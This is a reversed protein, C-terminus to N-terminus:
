GMIKMIEKKKDDIQRELAVIDFYLEKAKEIKNKFVEDFRFKYFSRDTGEDEYYPLCYYAQKLVLHLISFDYEKLNIFYRFLKNKNSFKEVINKINDVIFSVGKELVEERKIKISETEPSYFLSCTVDKSIKSDFELKDNKGKYFISIEFSVKVEDADKYRGYYTTTKYKIGLCFNHKVCTLNLLLHEKAIFNSFDNYSMKGMEKLVLEFIRWNHDKDFMTIM